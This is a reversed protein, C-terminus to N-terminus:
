WILKAIVMAALVGYVIKDGTRLPHPNPPETM